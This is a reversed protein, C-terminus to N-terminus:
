YLSDYFRSPKEVQNSLEKFGLKQALSPEPSFFSVGLGFKRSNWRAGTMELLTPAIDYATVVQDKKQDPIKPIDGFFANYVRHNQAKSMWSLNMHLDHDGIVAIGQKPNTKLIDDIFRSIVDDMNLYADRMDHFVKKENPCYGDPGHTDVTEVLIVFPKGSESLRKYEERARNLIFEDSYGWGTGINKSLDYGVKEFYLRDLIVFNGHQAFLKDKSSFNKYSGLILVLEYGEKRLLDFISTANPLFGRKSEYKNWKFQGLLDPLKLPLGFSWSALSEITWMAGYINRFGDIYQGQERLKALKPILSGGDIYSAEAFTSELSEGLVIILNKKEKFSVDTFNPILINEAFFDNKPYSMQKKIYEGIRFRTNVKHTIVTACSISFVLFLTLTYHMYYKRHFSSIRLKISDWLERPHSFAWNVGKSIRESFVVCFGWAIFLATGFLVYLITSRILNTDTGKTTHHFFWLIQEISVSSYTKLLWKQPFYVIITYWGAILSIIKAFYILLRSKNIKNIKFNFKM